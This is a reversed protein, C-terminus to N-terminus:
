EGGWWEGGGRGEGNEMRLEENEIGKRRKEM